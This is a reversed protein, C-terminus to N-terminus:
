AAARRRRRTLGAMGAAASGFLWVAPPVPVPATGIDVAAQAFSSHPGTQLIFQYSALPAALTWTFLAQQLLVPGFTSNFAGDEYTVTKSDWQAGNLTVPPLAGGLSNQELPTGWTETQLAVTIPGSQPGASGNITITFIETGSFSYLNGSGAAFTVPANWGFTASPTNSSGVDPAKPNTPGNFQDWEAYITGADGRTWGGWAASSDHPADFGFGASYPDPGNAFDAQALPSLAILTLCASANLYKSLM